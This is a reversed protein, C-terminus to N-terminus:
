NFWLFMYMNKKKINITISTNNDFKCGNIYIFKVKKPCPDINFLNNRTVDNTPIFIINDKLCNNFIINTIDIKNNDIGYDFKM